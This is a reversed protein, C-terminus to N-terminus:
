KLLQSAADLATKTKNDTRKLRASHLTSVPQGRFVAVRGDRRIFRWSLLLVVPVLVALSIM